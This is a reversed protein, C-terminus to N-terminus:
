TFELATVIQTLKQRLKGAKNAPFKAPVLCDRLDALASAKFNKVTTYKQQFYDAESRLLGASERLFDCEQKLQANSEKLLEIEARLRDVEFDDTQPQEVSEYYKQLQEFSYFDKSGDVNVWIRSKSEILFITGVGAPCVVLDDLGLGNFSKLCNPKKQKVFESNNLTLKDACNILDHIGFTLGLYFRRLKGQSKKFASYYLRESGKRSDPRISILDTGYQFSFPLGLSIIESLEQDSSFHTLIIKM